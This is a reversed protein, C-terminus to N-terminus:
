ELKTDITNYDFIHSNLTFIAFMALVVSKMM